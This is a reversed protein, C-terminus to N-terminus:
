QEDESEKVEFSQVIYNGYIHTFFLITNVSKKISICIPIIYYM